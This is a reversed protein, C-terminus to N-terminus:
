GVALCKCGEHVLQRFLVPDDIGFWRKTASFVDQLIESAVSMPNSNGVMSDDGDVFLVHSESPFIISMVILLARHSEGALLKQELEQLVSQGLAQGCESNRSAQSDVVLAIAEARDFGAADPDWGM